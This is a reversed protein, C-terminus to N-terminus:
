KIVHQFVKGVLSSCRLKLLLLTKEDEIYTYRRDWNSTTKMLWNHLSDTWQIGSQLAIWKSLTDRFQFDTDIKHPLLYVKYEYKNHPLHKVFIKNKSELLDKELGPRPEARYTILDEFEYAFADYFKKDNVYIDIFQGEVRFKTEVKHHHELFTALRIFAENDVTPKNVGYGAYRPEPWTNHVAFEICKSWTYNRLLPAGTLKCTLKYIYKNYFKRKTQRPKPLM